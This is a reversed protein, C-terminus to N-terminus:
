PKDKKFLYDVVPAVLYRRSAYGVATSVIAFAVGNCHLAIMAVMAAMSPVAVICTALFRRMRTARMHEDYNPMRLQPSESAKDSELAVRVVAAAVNELERPQAISTLKLKLDESLIVMWRGSSGLFTYASGTVLKRSTEVQVTVDWCVSNGRVGVLSVSIGESPLAAPQAVFVGGLEPKM